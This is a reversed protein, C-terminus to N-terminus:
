GPISSPARSASSEDGTQAARRVQFERDRDADFAAALHGVECGVGEMEALLANFEDVTVHYRLPDRFM